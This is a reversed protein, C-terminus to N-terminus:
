VVAGGANDLMSEIKDFIASDSDGAATRAATYGDLLRLVTLVQESPKHGYRAPWERMVDDSFM